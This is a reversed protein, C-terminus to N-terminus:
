TRCHKLSQCQNRDSLLSLRVEVDLDDRVLRVVRHRDPVRANAHGLVLQDVVQAGDRLGPRLGEHLGHRSAAVDRHDPLEADTEVRRVKHRLLHLKQEKQTDAALLPVISPCNPNRLM